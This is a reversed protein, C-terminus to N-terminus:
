GIRELSITHSIAPTGDEFLYKFSIYALKAKIGSAGGRYIRTHAGLVVTHEGPDDWRSRGVVPSGYVTVNAIEKPDMLTRKLMMIRYDMLAYAAAHAKNM